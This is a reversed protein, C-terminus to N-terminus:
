ILQWLVNTVRTTVPAKMVNIKARILSLRDTIIGDVGLQLM